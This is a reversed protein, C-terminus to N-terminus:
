GISISVSEPLRLATEIIEMQAYSIEFYQDNIQLEYMNYGNVIKKVCLNNVTYVPKDYENTYSPKNM